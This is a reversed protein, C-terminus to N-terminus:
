TSVGRAMMDGALTFAANILFQMGICILLFGMIRTLADIGSKGLARQMPGALRLVMWVVVAITTFAVVLAAHVWLREPWPVQMQVEAAASVVVALTGPGCLSPMTLPVFAPSGEEEAVAGPSVVPPFLMRFGIFAVVMGGALQLGPLTIGFVNRIASGFFYAVILTVLVFISVRRAESVLWGPPKGKGLGLLLVATTPPNMMPLLALIMLGYATLFLIM